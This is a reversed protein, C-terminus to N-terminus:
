SCTQSKQAIKWTKNGVKETESACVDGDGKLERGYVYWFHVYQM